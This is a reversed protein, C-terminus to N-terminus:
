ESVMFTDNLFYYYNYHKFVEQTKRNGGGGKDQGKRKSVAGKWM